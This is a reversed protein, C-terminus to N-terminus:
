FMFANKNMSNATLVKETEDHPLSASQINNIEMCVYELVIM